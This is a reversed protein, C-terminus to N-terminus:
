ALQPAVILKATNAWENTVGGTGLAANLLRRAAGELLPPVVMYTPTINLTRGAEGKVAMMTQRALEYNAANLLGKSGYALQWFGYGANCRSRIGYRFEDNMFVTEDESKDQRQLEFPMREQYILPRIARTTDLLYWAPDTGAQMNSYTVTAGVDNQYPHSTSFFPQGDYCNTTFGAKLLAYVLENPFAGATQGMEQFLPSFIGYKDDEIKTRGVAVTSEFLKNKLVFGTGMLNKVHRGGIWERMGPIQALWGYEEAETGSPVTMSIEKYTKPAEDFGKIYAANFASFVTKLGTNDIFM